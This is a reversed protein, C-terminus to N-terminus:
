RDAQQRGPRGASVLETGREAAFAESLAKAPRHGIRFHPNPGGLVTMRQQLTWRRQAPEMLMLRPYLYFAATHGRRDRDDIWVVVPDPSARQVLSRVLPGAHRNNVNVSMTAPGIRASKRVESAVRLVEETVALLQAGFLAASLPVVLWALPHVGHLNLVHAPALGLWGRWNRWAVTCWALGLLPLVFLPNPQSIGFPVMGIDLKFPGHLWIWLVLAANLGVLVGLLRATIRRGRSAHFQHASRMTRFECRRM